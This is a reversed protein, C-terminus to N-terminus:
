FDKLCAMIDDAFYKLSVSEINLSMKGAEIKSLDLVENILVLLDTGSKYIIETKVLKNENPWYVDVGLIPSSPAALTKVNGVLSYTPEIIVTDIVPSIYDPNNPDLPNLRPADCSYFAFAAFLLISLSRLLM